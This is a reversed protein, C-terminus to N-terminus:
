KIRCAYEHYNKIEGITDQVLSKNILKPKSLFNCNLNKVDSTIFKGVAELHDLMEECVSNVPGYDILNICYCKCGKLLIEFFGTSPYTFIYTSNHNIKYDFLVINIDKTKIDQTLSKKFQKFHESKYNEHHPHIIIKYKNNLFKIILESIKAFYDSYGKDVDYLNNITKFPYLFIELTNENTEKNKYKYNRNCPLQRLKDYLKVDLVNRQLPLENYKYLYQAAGHSAWYHKYNGLVTASAIYLYLDNNTYDTATYFSSRWDISIKYIKEYIYKFNTSKSVPLLTYCFDALDRCSVLNTRKTTNLHFFYNISFRRPM